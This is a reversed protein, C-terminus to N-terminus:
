RAARRRIEKRLAKQRARCKIIKLSNETEWECSVEQEFYNLLEDVSINELTRGEGCFNFLENEVSM